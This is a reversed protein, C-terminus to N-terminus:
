TLTGPKVLVVVVVSLRMSIETELGDHIRFSGFFDPAMNEMEESVDLMMVRGELEFGEM